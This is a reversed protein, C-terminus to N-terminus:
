YNKDTQHNHFPRKRNQNVKRQNYITNFINRINILWKSKKLKFQRKFGKGM